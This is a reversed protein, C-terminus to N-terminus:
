SSSVTSNCGFLKIYASIANCQSEFLSADDLESFLMKPGAKDTELRRYFDEIEAFWQEPNGPSDPEMILDSIVQWAVRRRVWSQTCRERTVLHRVRVAPSYIVRHGSLSLRQCLDLEESSLLVGPRRGLSESFGGAILAIEVRFALNTGALWEEDSIEKEENGWDVITLYGNMSQPLWAPPGTEWIPDVPGGVAAADHSLEFAKLMEELWDPEALADDDMYAILPTRCKKLAINRGRSLGVPGAYFYNIRNSSGEQDIAITQKQDTSTDIVMIKYRQDSLTQSLLSQMAKELLDYRNCTCICATIEPHNM